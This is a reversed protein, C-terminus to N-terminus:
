WNPNLNLFNFNHLRKYHIVRVVDTGEFLSGDNLQGTVTLEVEEESEINQLHQRKFKVVLTNGDVVGRKAPVGECTVTSLDVNSVNYQEPLRIFATFMGRSKLNLSEPMIDVDADIIVHFPPPSPTIRSVIPNFWFDFRFDSFGAMWDVVNSASITATITNDPDIITVSHGTEPPQSLWRAYSVAVGPKFLPSGFLDPSKAAELIAQFVYTKGVEVNSPTAWWNASVGDTEADWGDVATQSIIHGEVLRYAEDAIVPSGIGVGLNNVEPPLNEELKFTVTITQLTVEQTLIEPEVSRSATFRPAVILTAEPEWAGLPLHAPEEIQLGNFDWTYLGSAPQATFVSPDDPAFRVLDLNTQFRIIPDHVAEGGDPSNVINCFWQHSWEIPTNDISDDDTFYWNGHTLEVHVQNGSLDQAFATTINLFVLFSVILVVMIVRTNRMEREEFYFTTNTFAIELRVVM